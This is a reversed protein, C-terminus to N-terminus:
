WVSSPWGGYRLGNVPHIPRALACAASVSSNWALLLIDTQMQFVDKGCSLQRFISNDLFVQCSGGVALLVTGLMIIKFSNDGDTVPAFGM